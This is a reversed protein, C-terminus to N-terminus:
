HDVEYLREVVGELFSALRNAAYNVQERMRWMEKISAPRRWATGLAAGLSVKGQNDVLAVLDDPLDSSLDDSIARVALYRVKMERCVEAVALSEMDVALADHQAGLAEKQASKRVPEDVSLLRGVYLGCKPDAKMKLDISFKRGGPHAVGEAVVIDGVKLEPKLAGAFGAAIIWKPQHGEIMARTGRRARQPGMGCQVFGLRVEKLMGGRIVLGPALYKRVRDCKGVFPAMEIALAHVVAVDATSRDPKVEEEDVERDTM